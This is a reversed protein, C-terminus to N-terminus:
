KKEKKRNVIVAQTLIKITKKGAKDISEGLTLFGHDRIMLFNDRDVIKLVESALDPTGYSVTKKTQIIGLQEVAQMIIECHGHLISHIDPRANYVEYHLLTESSPEGEGQVFVQNNLPDCNEVLVFDKETLVSNLATHSATIYFANSGPDLRFSLNGYSGGEYLPALGKEHFLGAWKILENIRSDSYHKEKRRLLHFKVGKYEKEM